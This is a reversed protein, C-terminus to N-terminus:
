NLILACWRTFNGTIKNSIKKNISEIFNEWLYVCVYKGFSTVNHEPCGFNHLVWFKPEVSTELLRQLVHVHM